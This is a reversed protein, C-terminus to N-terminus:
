VLAGNLEEGGFALVGRGATQDLLAFVGDLLHLAELGALVLDDDGGAVGLLVRRRAFKRARGERHGLLADGPLVVGVALLVDLDFSATRVLEIDVDGLASWVRHWTRST